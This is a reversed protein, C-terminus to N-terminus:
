KFLPKANTLAKVVLLLANGVKQGSEAGFYVGFFVAKKGNPVSNPNTIPITFLHKFYRESVM